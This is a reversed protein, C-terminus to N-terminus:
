VHIKYINPISACQSAMLSWDEIGVNQTVEPAEFLFSCDPPSDIILGTPSVPSLYFSLRCYDILIEYTDM